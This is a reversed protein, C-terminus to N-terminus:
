DKDSSSSVVDELLQASHPGCCRQRRQAPQEADVVNQQNPGCRKQGVPRPQNFHMPAPLYSKDQKTGRQMIM